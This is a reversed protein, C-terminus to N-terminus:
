TNEEETLKASANIADQLERTTAKNAEKATEIGEKIRQQNQGIGKAIYGGASRLAQM